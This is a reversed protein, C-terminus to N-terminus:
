AGEQTTRAPNFAPNYFFLLPSNTTLDLFLDYRRKWAAYSVKQRATTKCRGDRTRKRCIDDGGRRFRRSGTRYRYDVGLKDRRRRRNRDGRRGYRRRGYRRSRDGSWRVCFGDGDFRVCRTRLRRDGGGIEAIDDSNILDKTATLDYLELAADQSDEKDGIINNPFCSDTIILDSLM